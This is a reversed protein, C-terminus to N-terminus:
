IAIGFFDALDRTDPHILDNDLELSTWAATLDETREFDARGVFGQTDEIVISGGGVDTARYLGYWSFGDLSQGLSDDPETAYLAATAQSDYKGQM